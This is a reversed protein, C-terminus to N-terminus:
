PSKKIEKWILDFFYQNAYDSAHFNDAALFQKRTTRTYHDHHMPRYFDVSIVKPMNRSIASFQQSFKRSRYDFLYNLPFPFFGINGINVSHCLVIKHAHKSIEVLFRQLEQTASKYNSLQVIDNGGIGVIILDYQTFQARPMQQVLDHIKAGNVALTEITADPYKNALLGGITFAPDTAGASYMTSDGLILIHQRAGKPMRTYAPLKEKLRMARSTRTIRWLVISLSILILGLFLYFM